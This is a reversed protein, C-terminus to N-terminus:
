RVPRSSAPPHDPERGVTQLFAGEAPTADAQFEEIIARAEGGLRSLSRCISRAHAEQGASVARRLSYLLDRAIMVRHDTARATGSSDAATPSGAPAGDHARAAPSPAAIAIPRPAVAASTGAPKGDVIPQAAHAEGAPGIDARFFAIVATIMAALVVLLAANRLQEM